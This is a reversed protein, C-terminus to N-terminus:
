ARFGNSSEYSVGAEVRSIASELVERTLTATM